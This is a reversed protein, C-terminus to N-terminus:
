GDCCGGRVVSSVSEDFTDRNRTRAKTHLLLLLLLLLLLALNNLNHTPVSRSPKHKCSLSTRRLSRCCRYPERAIDVMWSSAAFM